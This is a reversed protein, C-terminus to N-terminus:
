WWKNMNQQSHQPYSSGNRGSNRMNNNNNHNNNANWRNQTDVHFQDSHTWGHQDNRTADHIFNNEFQRDQPPGRGRGQYGRGQFGGRGQFRGRGRGPAGNRQFMMFNQSKPNLSCEGWKHSGGHVPCNVQPDPASSGRGRDGKGTGRGGNRGGVRGRGRGQGGRDTESGRKRKHNDEDDAISKVVQMYEVIDDLEDDVAKRGSKMYEKQWRLPFSELATKKITAEDYEPDTGQLRNAFHCLTEIRAVHTQPSVNRPKVCEGSSLYAKLVNRPESSGSYSMVFEKLTREFRAQTRQQPAIPNILSSWKQEATTDLVEDFEAWYDGPNVLQLKEAARMFKDIVHFLGEVGFKATFIPVTKKRTVSNATRELKVTDMDKFDHPYDYKVCPEINFTNSNM